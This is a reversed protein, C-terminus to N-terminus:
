IRTKKLIHIGYELNEFFILRIKLINRCADNGFLDINLIRSKGLMCKGTDKLISPLQVNITSFRPRDVLTAM